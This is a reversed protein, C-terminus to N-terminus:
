YTIYLVDAYWYLHEEVMKQMARATARQEPTLDKNLDIDFKKNFYQIIM